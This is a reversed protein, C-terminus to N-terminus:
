PRHGPSGRADPLINPGELVGCGNAYCFYVAIALYREYKMSLDDDNQLLPTLWKIQEKRAINGGQLLLQVNSNHLGCIMNFSWCLFLVYSTIVWVSWGWWIEKKNGFPILLLNWWNTSICNKKAKLCKKGDKQQFAALPHPRSCGHGQYVGKLSVCSPRIYKIHENCNKKLISLLETM